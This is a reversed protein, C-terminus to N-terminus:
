VKIRSKKSKERKLQSQKLVPQMQHQTQTQDYIMMLLKVCRPEKPLKARQISLLEQRSVMSNMSLCVDGCVNEEVTVEPTILRWSVKLKNFSVKLKKSAKIVATLLLKETIGQLNRCDYSLCAISLISQTQNSGVSNGLRIDRNSPDSSILGAM